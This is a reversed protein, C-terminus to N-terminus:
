THWRPAVQPNERAIAAVKCPLKPDAQRWGDAEAYATWVSCEVVQRAVPFVAAVPGTLEMVKMGSGIHVLVWRTTGSLPEAHHLGLGLLAYGECPVPGRDTVLAYTTPVWSLTM